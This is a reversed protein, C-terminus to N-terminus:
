PATKPDFRFRRSEEIFETHKALISDYNKFLDNYCWQYFILLKENDEFQAMISTPEQEKATESVAFAVSLDHCIKEKAISM